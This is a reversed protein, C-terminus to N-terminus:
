TVMAIPDPNTELFLRGLRAVGQLTFNLYTVLFTIQLTIQFTILFTSFCEMSGLGAGPWQLSQWKGDEEQVRQRKAATPTTVVDYDPDQDPRSPTMELRRKTAMNVAFSIRYHIFFMIMLKEEEKLGTM